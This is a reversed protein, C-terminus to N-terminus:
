RGREVGGLRVGVGHAHVPLSRQRGVELRLHRQRQRRRRAVARVRPLVVVVDAGRTLGGERLRLISVDARSAVLGERSWAAQADVAMAVGALLWVFTRLRATALSETDSAVHLAVLPAAV